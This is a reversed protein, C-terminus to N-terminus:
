AWATQKPARRKSHRATRAPPTVVSLLGQTDYLHPKAQVIEALISVAIETAGRTQPILGAPGNIRNISSSGFGASALNEIRTQHTRRSGLVGIYFADSELLAPLLDTEWEHDHFALVAATWPDIWSMNGNNTRSIARSTIGAKAMAERTAKDPSALLVEFGGTRALRGLQVAVPGIGAIFVRKKPWYHRLFPGVMDDRSPEQPDPVHLDARLRRRLRRDVRDLDDIPAGIDIVLEIASGCPLRIDMYPSGRGYRVKRSHGEDFALLAEAVIAREICGGSLHGVWNGTETVAMQAGRQYPSSGDVNVLTVIAVRIGERMRDLAFDLVYGDFTEWKWIEQRM